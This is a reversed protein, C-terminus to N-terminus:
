NILIQESMRSYLDVCMSHILPILTFIISHTVHTCRAILTNILYSHELLRYLVSFLLLNFSLLHKKSIVLSFFNTFFINLYLCRQREKERRCHLPAVIQPADIMAFQMRAVARAHVRGHLSYYCCATEREDQAYLFLLRSVM